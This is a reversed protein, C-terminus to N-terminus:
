LINIAINPMQNAGDLTIAAQQVIRGSIHSSSDETKAPLSQVDSMGFLRDIFNQAASMDNQKNMILDLFQNLIDMANNSQTGNDAIGSLDFDLSADVAIQLAGDDTFGIKISAAGQMNLSSDGFDGSIDFNFNIDAILNTIANETANEETEAGEEVGAFEKVVDQWNPITLGFTGAFPNVGNFESNQYINNIEAIISAAEANIANLAEEGEDGSHARNILALLNEGQARM